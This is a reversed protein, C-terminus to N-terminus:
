AKQSSVSEASTSCFTACLCGKWPKAVNQLCIRLASSTYILSWEETTTGGSNGKWVAEFDWSGHVQRIRIMSTRLMLRAFISGLKHFHQFFSIKAIPSPIFALRFGSGWDLHFRTSYWSASFILMPAPAAAPIWGFMTLFCHCDIIRRGPQATACIRGLLLCVSGSDHAIM